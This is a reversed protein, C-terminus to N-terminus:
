LLATASNCIHHKSCFFSYCLSPQSGHASGLVRCVREATLYTTQASSLSTPLSTCPRKFGRSTWEDARGSTWGTRAGETRMRGDARGSGTRGGAATRGTRTKWFNGVM